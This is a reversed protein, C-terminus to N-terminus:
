PLRRNAAYATPYWREGKTVTRGVVRLDANGNHHIRRFFAPVGKAARQASGHKMIDGPTAGTVQIHWRVKARCSPRLRQQRRAGM